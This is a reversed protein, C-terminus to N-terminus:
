FDFGMSLNAFCSVQSEWSEVPINVGFRSLVFPQFDSGKLPVQLYSSTLPMVKSGIALKFSDDQRRSPVLSGEVELFHGLMRESLHGENTRNFYWRYNSSVSTYGNQQHQQISLSVSYDNSKKFIPSEAGVRLNQFDTMFFMKLGVSM